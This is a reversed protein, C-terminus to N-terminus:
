LPRCTATYVCRLLPIRPSTFILVGWAVVLDLTRKTARNLPSDLAVNRISILPLGSIDGITVGNNTILHFADPYIRIEVSEDEALSVLDLVQDPTRGSLGCAPLCMLHGFAPHAPVTPEPLHSWGQWAQQCHLM